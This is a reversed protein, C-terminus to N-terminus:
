TIKTALEVGCCLDQFKQWGRWLTQWGPLGDGSRGIFGGLRAINKWFEATTLNDSPLNLHAVLVKLLKKPVLDEAPVEKATRSRNRLQLLRVSVIALFGLLTLLGSATELQRKEMACGTKM